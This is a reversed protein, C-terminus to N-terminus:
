VFSVTWGYQNAYAIETTAQTPDIGGGDTGSGAGSKFKITASGSKIRPLYTIAEKFSALNFRSYDPNTTWWDETDKQAEYEEATTVPNGYASMNERVQNINTYTVLPFSSTKIM